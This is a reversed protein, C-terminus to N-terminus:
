FRSLFPLSKVTWTVIGPGEQSTRYSWPGNRDALPGCVNRRDTRFVSHGRTSEGVLCVSTSPLREPRPPGLGRRSWPRTGPRKSSTGGSGSTPRGTCGSSSGGPRRRGRRGGLPSVDSNSHYEEGTEPSRGGVPVVSPSGDWLGDLFRRPFGFDNQVLKARPVSPPGTHTGM